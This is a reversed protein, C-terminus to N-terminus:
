LQGLLARALAPSGESARALLIVDRRPLNRVKRRPKQRPDTFAVTVRCNRRHMGVVRGPLRMGNFPVIVYDFPRVLRKGTGYCLPFKRAM